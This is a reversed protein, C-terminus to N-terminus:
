LSNENRQSPPTRWSDVLRGTQQRRTSRPNTENRIRLLALMKQLKFIEVMSKLPSAM